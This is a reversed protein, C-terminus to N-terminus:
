PSSKRNLADRVQEALKEGNFHREAPLPKGVHMYYVPVPATEGWRVGAPYVLFTDWALETGLGLPARFAEAVGHAGTWFHLARRDPLNVTATRADAETEGGLMPGWVVYTRLRDDAIEDLVYRQAM